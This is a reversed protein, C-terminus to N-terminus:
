QLECSVLVYDSLIPLLSSKNIKGGRGKSTKGGLGYSVGNEFQMFQKVYLRGGSNYKAVRLYKHNNRINRYIFVTM